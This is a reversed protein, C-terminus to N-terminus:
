AGASRLSQETSEALVGFSFEALSRWEADDADWGERIRLRDSEALTDPTIMTLGLEDASRRVAETHAPDHAPNVLTLIMGPETQIKKDVFDSYAVDTEIWWPAEEGPFGVM